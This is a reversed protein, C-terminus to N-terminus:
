HIITVFDPRVKYMISYDVLDLSNPAKNADVLGSRIAWLSGQEMKVLISQSLAVHVRYVTNLYHRVEKLSYHKRKVIIKEAAGQHERLFTWADMIGRLVGEVLEPHNKTFDNRMVLVPMKRALTNEKFERFNGHLAARVKDMVPEHQCVADIDGKQIAGPLKNKEMFVLTVDELPINWKELYTTLFYHAAGGKPVGIKKGALDRPSTIGRDAPVIITESADISGLEAIVSFLGPHAFSEVAAVLVPINAGDMGERVLGQRIQEVGRKYTHLSVDLGHDAFFHQDIAIQFLFDAAGIGVALNVRNSPNGMAPITSSICLGLVFFLRLIVQKM